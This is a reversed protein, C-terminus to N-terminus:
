VNCNAACASVARSSDQIALLIEASEMPIVIKWLNNTLFESNTLAAIMAIACLSQESESFQLGKVVGLLMGWFGGTTIIETAGLRNVRTRMIGAKLARNHIRSHSELFRENIAM